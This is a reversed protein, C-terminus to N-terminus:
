ESCIGTDGTVVMFEKIASVSNESSMVWTADGWGCSSFASSPTRMLELWLGGSSLGSRKDMGRCIHKWLGLSRNKLSCITIIEEEGGGGLERERDNLYRNESNQMHVGATGLVKRGLKKTSAQGLGALRAKSACGFNRNLIVRTQEYNCTTSRNPSFTCDLTPGGMDISRFVPLARAKTSAELKM